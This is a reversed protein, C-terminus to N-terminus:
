REHNKQTHHALFEEPRSFVTERDAPLKARRPDRSRKCMNSFMIASGACQQADDLSEEWAPDEYDVSMHCPMEMDAMTKVIFDEPNDAGLYGPLSHRKFPCEACPKTRDKKM